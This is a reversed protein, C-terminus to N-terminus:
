ETNLPAMVEITTGCGPRSRVSFNGNVLRVRERMSALGLGAKRRVSEPDFGIGDDNVTLYLMDDTGTLSVHAEEAQAHVAINRLGEQVIRYMCLALDPPLRDPVDKPMFRTVIGFRESFNKCESKVARVLGLDDLISPHLRRSIGHVDESVRILKEKMETVRFLIEDPSNQLKMELKGAEIALVALSQTLHDHLERSLRRLEDEQSSILRGALKELDHRSERLAKESERLADEAQKRDTIDRGVGQFAAIRGNINFFARCSWEQWRRSGDPLLLESTYTQVSKDTRFSALFGLIAEHREPPVHSLFRAGVLEGPSKGLYRAYAENVFTLTTDPLYRCILETQSDVVARYRERSERFAGNIKEGRTIGAIAKRYIDVGHASDCLNMYRNRSEELLRRTRRLERGQTELEVQRARLELLLRAKEDGASGQRLGASGASGRARPKGLAMMLEFKGTGGYKKM